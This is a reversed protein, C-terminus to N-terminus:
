NHTATPGEDPEVDVAERLRARRKRQLERNKEAGKATRLYRLQRAVALARRRREREETPTDSMASM